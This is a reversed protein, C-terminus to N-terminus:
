VKVSFANRGMVLLWKSPWSVNLMLKLLLRSVSNPSMFLIFGVHFEKVRDTQYYQLTKARDLAEKRKQAQLKAEEIDLKVREEQLTFLCICVPRACLLPAACTLIAFIRLKRERIYAFQLLFMALSFAKQM